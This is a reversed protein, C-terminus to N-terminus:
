WPHLRSWGMSSHRSPLFCTGIVKFGKRPSKRMSKSSNGKTKQHTAPAFFIVCESCTAATLHMKYPFYKKKKIHEPLKSFSSLFLM